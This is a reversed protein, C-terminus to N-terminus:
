GTMGIRRAKEADYWWTTEVPFGFDPKAQPWGFLDWRAVRHSNQFWQPVVFHYARLVRDLATLTLRHSDRDRATLAQEVLADVVPHRIGAFNRSSALGAAESTFAARLGELPTASATFRLGVIDYDFDNLRAQFQASDVPRISAEVGLRNLAGVYRGLLREATPDARTLFEVSLREGGASVLQGAQRRWGAEDLLEAARRLNTRDAGSGDSTPPTVAPGFVAEPLESRYPELIALEEASPEGKAAYVSKEFFSHTRRYSGYFLNENLWEFDFALGIAERTAPDAFKERRTNLYWAQFDPVAEEAILEKVVKGEEVAPFNYETAWSKSTFEERFTVAGKKFAEFGTQRDRFFELRIVDFNYFGRNVPLDAGWWDAVREYEIFRGQALNGVRYPGSGLPAELTSADFDRGAYWAASFIPLSAVILKLERSQRGSFTVTVEREGSAQASVMEKLPLVISAHGKEKLTTLSFAVDSALIPSGDHFRAQRRLTFVLVNEDDSVSVSEAAVGYLADPENLARKMLSAFTLEMRPPADGKTSFSSLTNFTYFSQNYAANPALMVIRGGKPANPNAYTLHSFGPAYGLDGFLSMGHRAGAPTEARSLGCLGALGPAALTLSAAGQLVTRRTFGSM